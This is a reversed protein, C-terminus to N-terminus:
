FKMLLTASAFSDTSSESKFERARITHSVTIEVAKFVFTMGAVFDGVVPEKRVSHSSVFTNGDLFINRLIARGDVGVFFYGGWMAPSAGTAFENPMNYGLRATTGIDAYIAVTGASGGFHPIVDVGWPGDTMRFAGLYERRYNLEFAIETRLQHEWGEPSKNHWEKQTAEALSEPGIVGLDLRLTERVKSGVPGPGRRQLLARGYLWGAYPRDDIVLNPNTLDEPTYIEQAIGLGFKQAQMDYGIAPLADSFNKLWNPLSNDASFYDLRAGQTYHKDTGDVADNEWKLSLIRGEWGDNGRALLQFGLLALATCCLWQRRRHMIM